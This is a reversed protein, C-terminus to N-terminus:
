RHTAPRRQRWVTRILVNRTYPCFEHIFPSSLRPFSTAIGGSFHLSSHPSACCATFSSRCSTGVHTIRAGPAPPVITLPRCYPQLNCCRALCNSCPHFRLNKPVVVLRRWAEPSVEGTRFNWSEHKWTEKVKNITGGGRATYAVECARTRASRQACTRPSRGIDDTIWCRASLNIVPQASM